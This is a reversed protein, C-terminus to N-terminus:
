EHGDATSYAADRATRRLILRRLLARCFLLPTWFEIVQTPMPAPCPAPATKEAVGQDRYNTTAQSSSYEIMHRAHKLAPGCVKAAAGIDISRAATKNTEAISPRAARVAATCDMCIAM